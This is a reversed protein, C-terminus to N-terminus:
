LKLLFKNLSEKEPIALKKRIHFRHNEITRISLNTLESIQKTDFDLIILNCVRLESATLNPSKKLLKKIFLPNSKVNQSKLLQWTRSEKLGLDIIDVTKKSVTEIEELMQSQMRLAVKKLKVLFKIKEATEELMKALKKDKHKLSNEFLQKEKKTLKNPINNIIDNWINGEREEIKFRDLPVLFQKLIYVSSDEFQMEKKFFVLLDKDKNHFFAIQKPIEIEMVSSPKFEISVISKGILDEKELNLVRKFSQNVYEILGSQKSFIVVYDSINDIILEQLKKISTM